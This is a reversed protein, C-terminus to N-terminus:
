PALPSLDLCACSFGKHDYFIHLCHDNQTRSLGRATLKSTRVPSIPRALMQRKVTGQKSRPRSHCITFIRWDRLAPYRGRGFTRTSRGGGAGLRACRRRAQSAGPRGLQAPRPPPVDRSTALGARRRSRTRLHFARHREGGSHDRQRPAPGRELLRRRAAAASNRSRVRPFSRSAAAAPGHV